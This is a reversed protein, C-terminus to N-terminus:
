PSAVDGIIHQDCEFVDDDDGQEDILVACIDHYGLQHALQIPTLARHQIPIGAGGEGLETNVIPTLDESLAEVAQDLSEFIESIGNTNHAVIAAYLARILGEVEQQEGDEEMEILTGEDLVLMIPIADDQKTAKKEEEIRKM